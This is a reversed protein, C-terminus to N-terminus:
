RTCTEYAKDYEQMYFQIMGKSMLLGKAFTHDLEICKNADKLGEPVAGL